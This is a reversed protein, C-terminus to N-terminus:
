KEGDKAMAQSLGDIENPSRHFIRPPGEVKLRVRLETKMAALIRDRFCWGEKLGKGPSGTRRQPFDLIRIIREMRGRTVEGTEEKEMEGEYEMSWSYRADKVEEFM